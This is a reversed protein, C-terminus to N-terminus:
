KTVACSMGHLLPCPQQSGPPIIGSASVQTKCTRCATRLREVPDTFQPYWLELAHPHLHRIQQHAALTVEPLRSLGQLLHSAPRDTRHEPFCAADHPRGHNASQVEHTVDSVECAFAVEANNWTLIIHLAFCSHMAHPVPVRVGLFAGKGPCAAITNRPHMCVTTGVILLHLSMSVQKSHEALVRVKTPSTQMLRTM